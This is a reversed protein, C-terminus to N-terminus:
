SKSLNKKPKEDFRSPNLVFGSVIIAGGILLAFVVQFVLMFTEM